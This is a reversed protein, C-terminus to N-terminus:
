HKTLWDLHMELEEPRCELHDGCQGLLANPHDHGGDTVVLLREPIGTDPLSFLQELAAGLQTNGGTAISTDSKLDGGDALGDNFSFVKVWPLAVLRKLGRQASISSYESGMSGSVDLLVFRKRPQPLISAGAFCNKLASQYESVRDPRGPHVEGLLVCGLPVAVVPAADYNILVVGGRLGVGLSYASLVESVHAIDLQRRQKFEVIAITGNNTVATDVSFRLDPKIAKRKGLPHLLKTEGQVHAFVTQSAALKAILAPSTADLAIHGGTVVPVPHFDDLAELAKVAAWVEYTHWRHRWFPLDLIDLAELTSRWASGVTTQLKPAIRQDFYDAAKQKSSDPIL